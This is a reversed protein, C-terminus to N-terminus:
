HNKKMLYAGFSSFNLLKSIILFKSLFFGRSTMKNEHFSNMDPINFYRGKCQCFIFNFLKLLCLFVLDSQIKIIKNFDQM